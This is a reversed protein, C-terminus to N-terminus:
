RSFPPSLDSFISAPLAQSDTKLRCNEQILYHTVKLTQDILEPTGVITVLMRGLVSSPDALAKDLFEQPPMEAHICEIVDLVQVVWGYPQEPVITSFKASFPAYV